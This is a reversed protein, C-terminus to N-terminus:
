RHFVKEGGTAKSLLQLLMVKEEESYGGVQLQEYISDIRTDRIKAKKKKEADVFNVIKKSMTGSRIHLLLENLIISYM